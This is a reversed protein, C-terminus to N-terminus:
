PGSNEREAMGQCFALLERTQSKDFVAEAGLKLCHERVAPTAYSSLVVVSGRVPLEGCRGVVGMGSGQELVLDVVALDWEGAHEQLWLNAEAETAASDVIRFGPLQGFLDALVGRMPSLDEVLFVRVDMCYSTEALGAYRRRGVRRYSLASLVGRPRALAM